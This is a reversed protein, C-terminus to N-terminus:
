AVGQYSKSKADAAVNREFDLFYQQMMEIRNPWQHSKEVFAYNREILPLYSMYESLVQRLQGEPDDVDIEVIPCYDFLQRMEDPVKGLILCKSAMSQLYRWTM